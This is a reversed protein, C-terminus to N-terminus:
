RARRFGDVRGALAPQVMELLATHIAPSGGVVHGRQFPERGGLEDSLTGGAEEILLWGAAIDWPSLALEWFGDLRGCAVYALDLSASGARRVDSVRRIVHRFSELYPEVLQAFRFPFGTGILARELSEPSSVRIPDDNLTAGEGRTASFLEDRTPDFVAGALLGQPGRAAVSVAFAPYGHIFNKTGDLPDVIWEVAGRAESAAEPGSFVEAPEMLARPAPDTVTGPAAEMVAAMGGSAGEEGLFRDGPRRERILAQIARESAADVETVFDNHAKELVRAAGAARADSLISGGLRACDEALTRLEANSTM